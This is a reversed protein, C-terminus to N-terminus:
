GGRASKLRWLLDNPIERTKPEESWEKIAEAWEDDESIVVDVDDDAPAPSPSPPSKAPVLPPLAKTPIPPPPTPWAKGALYEILKADLSQEDDPRM